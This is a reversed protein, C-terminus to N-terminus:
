RISCSPLRNESNSVACRQKSAQFANLTFAQDAVRRQWPSWHEHLLIAQPQHLVTGTSDSQARVLGASPILAHRRMSVDVYGAVDSRIKFRTSVETRGPFRGAADFWGQEAAGAGM